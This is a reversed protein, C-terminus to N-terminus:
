SLFLFERLNSSPTVKHLRGRRRADSVLGGWLDQSARELTEMDGIVVLCFRARTLAVNLREKEQLFGIHSTGARVCSIVIVDREGGQFGDVTNVLVETPPLNASQLALALQQKQKAYFTIVGSTLRGSESGVGRIEQLVKLVLNVEFENCCQGGDQSEQSKLDLVTYPHLPSERNQSGNELRGGYFYRAPWNAIASHMRYQTDLRQVPNRPSSDFSHILRNFLSQNYDKEKAVRSTVTAALQEHDGVMVLKCFGLRLPILAEPEVCQSAEDMICVSVPRILGTQRSTGAQRGPMLLREVERSTSSSLTSLLVDAGAMVKEEALKRMQHQNRPDVQPNKLQAKIKNVQRIKDTVDRGLKAALDSNGEKEAIQQANALQNVQDQKTRLDKELSATMQDKRMDKDVMEEVMKDFTYDKVEPHVSKMIGLRVMRFSAMKGAEKIDKQLIILKRALEDVAANSPAVVLVRPMSDPSGARSYLVQMILGTITSSKGTGPPGQVLSLSPELPDGMVARTVSVIVRKQSPNLGSLSPLDKIKANLHESGIPPMFNHPYTEPSILQKAMPSKTVNTLADFKRLEHKVRAM